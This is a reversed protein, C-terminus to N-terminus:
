GGREGNDRESLSKRVEQWFVSPDDSGISKRVAAVVNPKSTCLLGSDLLALAGSRWAELGEIDARLSEGAAVWAGDSVNEDAPLDAIRTTRRAALERVKATYDALAGACETLLTGCKECTPKVM